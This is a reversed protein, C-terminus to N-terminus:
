KTLQRSSNNRIEHTLVVDINRRSSKREVLFTKLLMQLSHLLDGEWFVYDHYHLYEHSHKDFWHVEEWLLNLFHTAQNNRYTDSLIFLYFPCLRHLHSYPYLWHHFALLKIPLPGKKFCSMKLWFSSVSGGPTM